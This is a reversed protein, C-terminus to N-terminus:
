EAGSIDNISYTSLLADAQQKGLSIVQEPHGWYQGIIRANSHGKGTRSNIHLATM